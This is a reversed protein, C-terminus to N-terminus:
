SLTAKWCPRSISPSVSAKSLVPKPLGKAVCMVLNFSNPHTQQQNFCFLYPILLCGLFRGLIFCVAQEIKRGHNLPIFIDTEDAECLHTVQSLVSLSLQLKKMQFVSIITM